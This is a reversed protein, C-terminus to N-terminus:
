RDDIESPDGRVFIDPTKSVDDCRGRSLSRTSGQHIFGKDWHCIRSRFILTVRVQVARRHDAAFRSLHRQVVGCATLFAATLFFAGRLIRSAQL